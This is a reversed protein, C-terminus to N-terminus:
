FDYPILIFCDDNSKDLESTDSNQMASETM